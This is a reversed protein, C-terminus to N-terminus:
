KQHWAAGPIIVFYYNNDLGYSNLLIKSATREEESISLSIKSIKYKEPLLKEIPKHLWTKQNFNSPFKNHHNLFLSFRKARPKVVNLSQIQNTIARILKSRASNHLDLIIDFNRQNIIKNIEKISKFSNNSNVSHLKDISSHNFLLPAYKSLTMYDISIDPYYKRLTNLVSTTQIIDGISSFRLVLIRMLSSNM